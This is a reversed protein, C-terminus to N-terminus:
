VVGSLDASGTTFSDWRERADSVRQVEAPTPTIGLQFLLRLYDAANRFELVACHFDLDRQEPLTLRREAPWVRGKRVWWRVRGQYNLDSWRRTKIMEKEERPPLSNRDTYYSRKQHV